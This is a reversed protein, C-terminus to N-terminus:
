YNFVFDVKNYLTWLLDGGRQVRANGTTGRLTEMAIEKEADTPYRSLVTLYMRLVVEEDGLGVLQSLFSPQGAVTNARIRTMVFADNMLNLAQMVTADGKRDDDFRNGRGFSNLFAAVAGNDPLTGTEPLQMAFRVPRTQRNTYLPGTPESVNYTPLIGSTTAIADHVEEAMLRRVLRRAFSSEYAENWEGEYRASLQYAESNVITRMLWKLDFQHEQFEKALAQLLVPHSAQLKWDGIDPPNDPDLRAPDMQDLPEVLGRGMLAAWFYNVTARAFQIDSTLHGALADRYNEGNAPSGGGFPYQPRLRLGLGDVPQRAPRNGTTTNLTYDIAINDVLAYYRLNPNTAPDPRTAVFRTRAFSAAMGWAESRKANRGWLSLTDLHGRGNHCLICNMHGIGLFTQAVDAAMQDYDDQVPGGNTDSGILYNGTGDEFSNTSKSAILERAMRDYPKNAALSEKIWKYFANRGPEYRPTVDSLRTNKYLDGLFMTWKDAWEPSDMLKEVYAARKGESGDAAFAMLGDLEPVRGTLDLTVRRAFEFDTTKEAPAIGLQQIQGFIERDVLNTYSRQQLNRTRTGAPILSQPLMRSVEETLRARRFRNRAEAAYKEREAGFFSCSSHNELEAPEPEQAGLYAVVAGAACLGIMLHAPKM